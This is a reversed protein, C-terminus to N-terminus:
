GLLRRVEFRAIRGPPAAAAPPGAPEPHVTVTGPVPTQPVAAETLHTPPTDAMRRARSSPPPCGACSVRPRSRRAVAFTPPPFASSRDHPPSRGPPCPRRAGPARPPPAPRAPAPGPPRGTSGPCPPLTAPAPR